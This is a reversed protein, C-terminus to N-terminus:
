GEPLGLGSLADKGEPGAWAGPAGPQLGAHHAAVQDWRARHEGKRRGRFRQGRQIKTSLTDLTEGNDITITKAIGGAKITFQTGARLSSQSTLQQLDALQLAGTPLGLRDLVSAGGASAAIATPAAQNAKSTFRSSWTIAGTAVDLQALFGDKTGVAPQGPLDTGM